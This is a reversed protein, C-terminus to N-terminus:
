KTRQLRVEQYIYSIYIYIQYLERDSTPSTFVKEWDTPQWKTWNVSDKAKCFGQLKILDWKYIRSRLVYVISTRKLFDRGTGMHKLCKGMKKETDTYRTKNSSTRQTILYV